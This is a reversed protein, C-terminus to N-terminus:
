NSIQEIRLMFSETHLKKHKPDVQTRLFIDVLFDRSMKCVAPVRNQIAISWLTNLGLLNQFQKLDVVNFVGTQVDFNINRQEANVNLFLMKFCNFGETQLKACDLTEQNCMIKQFVNVRQREDLLFRRERSQSGENEKTLFTFFRKAEYDTTQETVMTAFLDSIHQFNLNGNRSNTILFEIFSMFIDIYDKHTWNDGVLM